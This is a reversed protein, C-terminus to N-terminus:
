RSLNVFVGGKGFVIDAAAARAIRRLCAFCVPHDNIQKGFDARLLPRCRGLDCEGPQEGLLGPTGIGPLRLSSRKSSSM